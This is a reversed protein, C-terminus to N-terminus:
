DLSVSGYRIYLGRQWHIGAYINSLCIRWHSPSHCLTVRLRGVKADSPRWAVEASSARGLAQRAPVGPRNYLRDPTRWKKIRRFLKALADLLGQPPREQHRGYGLPRGVVIILPFPANADASAREALGSSRRVAPSAKDPVAFRQAAPRSRRVSQRHCQLQLQNLLLILVM